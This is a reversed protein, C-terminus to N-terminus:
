YVQGISPPYKLGHVLANNFGSIQMPTIDGNENEPYFILSSSFSINVLLLLLSFVMINSNLAFMSIRSVFASTLFFQKSNKNQFSKKKVFIQLVRPYGKGM